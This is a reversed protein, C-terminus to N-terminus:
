LGVAPFADCPPARDSGAEFVRGGEERYQVSGLDPPEDVEGAVGVRDVKVEIGELNEVPVRRRDVLGLVPDRGAARAGGHAEAV